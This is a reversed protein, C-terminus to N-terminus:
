GISTLWGCVIPAMPPQNETVILCLSGPWFIDFPLIAAQKGGGFVSVALYGLPAILSAIIRGQGTGEM